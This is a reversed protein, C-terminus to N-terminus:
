QPPFLVSSIVHIVGNTAELDAKIVKSNGNIVISHGDNVVSIEPGALTAVNTVGRPIDSSLIKSPVVHYTLVKKLLEPDAMLSDITAQPVAAFAENPPAFVTINQTTALADALGAKVVLDKLTTFNEYELVTELVNKECMAKMTRRKRIITRQRRKGATKKATKKTVKRGRIQMKRGKMNKGKYSKRSIIRAM